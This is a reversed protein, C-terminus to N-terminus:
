ENNEILKKSKGVFSEWVVVGDSRLGFKIDPNVGKPGKLSVPNDGYIFLPMGELWQISPTYEAPITIMM